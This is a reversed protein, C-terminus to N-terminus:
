QTLLNIALRTIQWCISYNKNQFAIEAFNYLKKANDYKMTLIENSDINQPPNLLLENLRQLNERLRPERQSVITDATRIQDLKIALKNFIQLYQIAVPNKDNRLATKAATLNSQLLNLLLTFNQNNAMNQELSQLMFEATEIQNTIQSEAPQLSSNLRRHLQLLLRNAVSLQQRSKTFSRSEYNQRISVSLFTLREFLRKLDPSTAQNITERYETIHEELRQLDTLLRDIQSTSNKEIMDLIRFLLRNVIQLKQYSQLPQNTNYLQRARRIEQEARRLLDGVPKNDTLTIMEKTQELLTKSEELQNELNKLKNKTEGKASKIANEAFFIALFYNKLSAEPNNSNALRYARQRFFRARNLLKKAEDTQFQSVIQEAERIKQDLRDKFKNQFFPNNKVKSYLRNLITFGMKIYAAAQNYKRNILADQALNLQKEASRIIDGLQNNPFLLTFRRGEQVKEQLRDIQSKIEEPSLSQQAWLLNISFILLLLLLTNELKQRM